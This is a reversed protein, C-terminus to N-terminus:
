LLGTLHSSNDRKNLCPFQSLLLPETVDSLSIRALIQARDSRDLLLMPTADVRVHFTAVTAERRLTSDGGVEVRQTM